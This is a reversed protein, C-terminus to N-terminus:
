LCEPEPQYYFSQSQIIFCVLLDSRATISCKVWLTRGIQHFTEGQYAHCLRHCTSCQMSALLSKTTHAFIWEVVTSSNERARERPTHQCTYTCIFMCRLFIVKLARTLKPVINWAYSPSLKSLKAARKWRLWIAFYRTFSCPTLTFSLFVTLIHTNIQQTYTHATNTHRFM